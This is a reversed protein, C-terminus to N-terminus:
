ILINCLFDKHSNCFHISDTQTISFNLLRNSVYKLSSGLLSVVGFLSLTICSSSNACLLSLLASIM